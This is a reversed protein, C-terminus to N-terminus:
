LKVQANSLFKRLLEDHIQLNFHLEGEHERLQSAREIEDFFRKQAVAWAGRKRVYEENNDQLNQDAAIRAIWYCLSYYANYTDRFQEHIAPALVKGEAAVASNMKNIGANMRDLPPELLGAYDGRCRWHGRTFAFLDVLLDAAPKGSLNWLVRLSYVAAEEDSTRPRPKPPIQEALMRVQEELARNREELDTPGPGSRKRALWDKLVQANPSTDWFAAAIIALLLIVGAFAVAGVPLAAVELIERGAWPLATGEIWGWFVLGAIVVVLAVALGIMPRRRSLRDLWADGRARWEVFKHHM